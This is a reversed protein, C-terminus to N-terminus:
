SERPVAVAFWKFQSIEFLEEPFCNIERVNLVYAADPQPTVKEKFEMTKWSPGEDLYKQPDIASSYLALTDSVWFSGKSQTYYTVYIQDAGSSSAHDYAEDFGEMFNKSLVDKNDNYYNFLFLYVFVGLGVALISAAFPLVKAPLTELGWSVALAALLILPYFIINIRNTNVGNVVLGLILSSAMWALLPWMKKRIAQVLGIAALIPTFVYTAGFGKISNWPETATQTFVTSTLAAFNKKLDQPVNESFFLFSSARTTDPFAPITLFPLRIGEDLKALNVIALGALPWAFLSFVLLCLLASQIKIQKTALLILVLMGLLLPVSVFATAYCYMSFAFFPMSLCLFLNQSSSLSNFTSSKPTTIDSSASKSLNDSSKSKSNIIESSAIKSNLSESSESQSRLGDSSASQSNIIEPRASKSLNKFDQFHLGNRIGRNLLYMAIALFHPFMVCDLAWRSAMYHWPTVACLLLAAIGAVDGALDKAFLYFFWLGAMGVLLFPIRSSFASLGLVRIFPAMIYAPLASMQGYGWGTLHVPLFIGWHDKGIMSLSYADYALLAEDQNFGPPIAGFGPLRIAFALLFVLFAIMSTKSKTIEQSEAPFSTWSSETQARDM